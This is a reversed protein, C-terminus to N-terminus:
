CAATNSLWTRIKGLAEYQVGLTFGAGRKLEMTNIPKTNQQMLRERERKKFNLSCDNSGGWHSINTTFFLVAHAMQLSPGQQTRAWTWPTQGIFVWSFLYDEKISSEQIIETKNVKVNGQFTKKGFHSPRRNRTKMTFQNGWFLSMQMDCYFHVHDM